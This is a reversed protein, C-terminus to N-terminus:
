EENSTQKKWPPDIAQHLKQNIKYVTYPIAASLVACLLITGPPIRGLIADIM